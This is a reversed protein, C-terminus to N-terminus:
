NHYNLMKTLFLWIATSLCSILPSWFSRNSNICLNLNDTGLVQIKSNLFHPVHSLDLLKSSIFKKQFKQHCWELLSHSQKHVNHAWCLWPMSLHIAWQRWVWGRNTITIALATDALQRSIASHGGAPALHRQTRRSAPSPMTDAELWGTRHRAM